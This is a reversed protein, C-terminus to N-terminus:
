TLGCTRKMDGLAKADFKARENLASISSIKFLEPFFSLARSNAANAAPFAEIQFLIRCIASPHSKSTKPRRQDDLANLALVQLVLFPDTSGPYWGEIMQRACHDARWEQQISILADSAFKHQLSAHCAEHGVIFTISDLIAKRVATETKNTLANDPRWPKGNVYESLRIVTSATSATRQFKNRSLLFLYESLYPQLSPQVNAEEKAWQTWYMASLLGVPVEIKKSTPNFYAVLELSSTVRTEIGRLQEINGTLQQTILRLIEGSAWSGDQLLYSDLADMGFRVAALENTSLQENWKKSKRIQWITQVADNVQQDTGVDPLQSFGQALALSLTIALAVRSFTSSRFSNSM